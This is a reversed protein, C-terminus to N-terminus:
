TLNALRTQENFFIGVTAPNNFPVVALELEILIGNDQTFVGVYNLQLRPDLNAVRRVEAELNERTDETNPEFLFSWITTGYEPQGPKQGQPINFANVLDQIILQEDVIRFKKGFVIPQLIGGTGGASGVGMNTTRPKCANQTSFGIYQAM